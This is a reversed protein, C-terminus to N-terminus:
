KKRRHVPRGRGDLEDPNKHFYELYIWLVMVLLILVFIIDM